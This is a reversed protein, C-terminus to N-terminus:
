LKAKIPQTPAVKPDRPRGHPKTHPKLGPNLADMRISPKPASPNLRHWVLRSGAACIKLAM